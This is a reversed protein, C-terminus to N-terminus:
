SIPLFQLIECPITSFHPPLPHHVVEVGSLLIMICRSSVFNACVVSVSRSSRVITELQDVTLLEWAVVNARLQLVGHLSILLLARPWEDKPFNSLFYAILDNSLLTQTIASDLHPFDM